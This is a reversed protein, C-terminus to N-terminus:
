RAATINHGGAFVNTPDVAAKLRALRDYDGGYAARLEAEDPMHGVSNPHLRPSMQATGRVRATVADVWAVNEADRAATDCWAAPRAIWTGPENRPLANPLDAERSMAGRHPVLEVHAVIDDGSPLTSAGDAIVDITSDTLSTVATEESFTRKSSTDIENAFHLDAFSMRFVQDVTPPDFARLPALDQEASDGSHCLWAELIPRGLLDPPSFPPAARRMMAFMTLDEPAELLFDRFRRITDGLDDSAWALVGVLMAEPVPHLQVRVSTVVGFNGVTGRVGWFLESNEQPSATVVEGDATVLEVELVNDCAFGIRPSLWGFGGGLMLGPGTSALLGTAAGLGHRGAARQLDGGRAGGQIRATRTRPDVDIAQMGSVDILAGGESASVGTANHGTSRISVPLGRERALRVAAVVDATSHCCAVFAPRWDICPNHGLRAADYGSTGPTFLDGEFRGAVSETATV